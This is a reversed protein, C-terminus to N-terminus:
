GALLHFLMRIVGYAIIPLAIFAGMFNKLNQLEPDEMARSALGPTPTYSLPFASPEPEGARWAHSRAAPDAHSLYSAATAAGPDFRRGTVM